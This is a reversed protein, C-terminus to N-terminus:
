FLILNLACAMKIGSVKCLAHGLYDLRADQTLMKQILFAFDKDDEVLITKVKNDM